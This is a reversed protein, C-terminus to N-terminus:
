KFNMCTDKDNEYEIRSCMNPLALAIPLASWYNKNELSKKGAKIFDKIRYYSM